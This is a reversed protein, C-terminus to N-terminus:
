QIPRIQLSERDVIQWCISGRLGSSQGTAHFPFIARESGSDCNEISRFAPDFRTPLLAQTSMVTKLHHIEHPSGHSEPVFEVKSSSPCIIIALILPSANSFSCPLVYLDWEIEPLHEDLIENFLDSFRFGTQM